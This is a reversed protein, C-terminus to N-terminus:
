KPWQRSTPRRPRLGQSPLYCRTQDVALHFFSVKPALQHADRRHHPEPCLCIECAGQLSHTEGSPQVGSTDFPHIQRDTMAHCRECSPGPGRGLLSWLQQGMQLPPARVIVSTAGGHLTAPSAQAAVLVLHCDDLAVSEGAFELWPQPSFSGVISPVRPAKKGRSEPKRKLAVCALHPLLTMNRLLQHLHFCFCESLAESRFLHNTWQRFGARFANM